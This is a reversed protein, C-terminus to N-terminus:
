LRRSNCGDDACFSFRGTFVPRLDHRWRSDSGGKTKRVSAILRQVFELEADKNQVVQDVTPQFAFDPTIGRGEGSPDSAAVDYRLLPIVVRVKSAPLTVLVFEGSTNGHYAGGTEQGVFAGRRQSRAISMPLQHNPRGMMGQAIAKASATAHLACWM